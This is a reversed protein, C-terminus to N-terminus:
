GHKRYYDTDTETMRWFWCWARYEPQPMGDILITSKFPYFGVTTYQRAKMVVWDAHNM